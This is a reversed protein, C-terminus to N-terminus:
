RVILVRRASAGADGSLRVVYVGSALAASADWALTHSGASLPGDHLTAITRGLADVVTVTVAADRTLTLPVTIRGRAPNPFPQGLGPAADPGDEGSVTGTYLATVEAASLAVNYM